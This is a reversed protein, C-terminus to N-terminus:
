AAGKDFNAVVVVLAITTESKPNMATQRLTNKSLTAVPQSQALVQIASTVGRMITQM